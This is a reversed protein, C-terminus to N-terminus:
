VAMKMKIAGNPFYGILQFDTYAMEDWDKYKISSDLELCPFPRFTKTMQERIADLHNSYVHCDGASYIIDGPEMNHRKALIYTLVAYSVINYCGALAFDSSRMTFNCSLRKIGNREEQVYWQAQMHCPLLAMKDSDYPNWASIVIRRSFPDNKLLNEVYKLQDVGTGYPEGPRQGFRRWQHGYIPGCDGEENSTLGRADLFERSSNGNWINVGRERLNNSNTDGRCFWLLEEVINKFSVRKSTMLPISRSIDFRITEGFLSITGIKTRDTRSKGTTIIKNILGTYKSEPHSTEERPEFYIFRYKLNNGTMEDSFDTIEYGKLLDPNVTTDIGTTIEPTIHTLIIENPKLEEDKLFLEYIKAGGIIYYKEHEDLPLSKKFRSLSIFHTNDYEEEQFTHNMTLVINTRGKLPRSPLSLWTKYGMIVTYGKTTKRFHQLDEPIKYLLDNNNGIGFTNNKFVASLILSISM